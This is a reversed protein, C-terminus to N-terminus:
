QRLLRLTAQFDVIKSRWRLLLVCAYSLAGIAVLLLLRALAPLGAFLFERSLWVTGAMLLCGETAPQLAAFYRRVPLDLRQFARRWMPFAVIVPYVILWAGALGATGWRAAMVFGPPLILAAFLTRWMLYRTDKAVILIQALVPTVSRLGASICLLQLPLIASRWQEGVVVPVLDKAVLGLGITAPFTIFSLGETILLVYRRLEAVDKQSASFIGPTVSNVLTTIKEMPVYALNWALTYAGLAAKGLLKGAVFFDSDSYVYWALRSVLIEGSFTLTRRMAGWRPWRYSPRVSWTLLATSVLGSAIVGGVLAWYRFGALALALTAGALVLSQAGEILALRRFALRKQLLSQPVTRFAMIVFNLSMVLVVAVLEPSKFFWGIPGAVLCSIMFASAGFLLSLTNLEALKADDFDTFAVVVTGIGFESLLTMLTLYVAAMGILGYDSPTLLRAIVFTAAWSVLQVVWKVSGM